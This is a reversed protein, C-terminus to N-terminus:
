FNRGSAKQQGFTVFGVGKDQRGLDTALDRTPTDRNWRTQAGVNESATPSCPAVADGVNM